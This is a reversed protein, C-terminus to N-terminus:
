GGAVIVGGEDEGSMSVGDKRQAGANMSHEGMGEDDVRVLHDKGGERRESAPGPDM